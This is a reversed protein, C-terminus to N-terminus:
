KGNDTRHAMVLDHNRAVFAGPMDSLARPRLRCARVVRTAPQDLGARPLQEIIVPLGTTESL